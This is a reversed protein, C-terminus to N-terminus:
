LLQTSMNLNLYFNLQDKQSVNGCYEHKKSYLIHNQFIYYLM